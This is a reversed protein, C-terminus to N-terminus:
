NRKRGRARIVHRLNKEVREAMTKGTIFNEENAAARRDYEKDRESCYKAWEPCDIACGSHRKPCQTHTEKNFCPPQLTAM